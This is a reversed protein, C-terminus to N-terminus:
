NKITTFIDQFIIIIIIIIIIIENDRTVPRKERTSIRQFQSGV